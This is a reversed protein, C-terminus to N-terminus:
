PCYRVDLRLDHWYTWDFSNTPGPEITFEVATADTPVGLDFAAPARDAPVAAPTLRREWALSRSGDAAIWRVAFTAGDTAAAPDAFAADRFAGAGRLRLTGAPLPHVLRSPAHAFLDLPHHPVLDGYLRDDALRREFPPEPAAHGLRAVGGPATKESFGDLALPLVRPLRAHRAGAEDRRLYLRQSGFDKVLVYDNAILDRLAPFSEHGDIERKNYGFSDPGVADVFFLARSARLEALYRPRFVPDRMPWVRLQLESHAGRTGQPLGTEVHLHPWWGWMALRDGPRAVARIHRAVDDYPQRWDRALNGYNEPPGHRVRLALPALVATVLLLGFFARRVRPSELGAHLELVAIGTWLIAPLVFLLLYHFFAHRPACLAYIAAASALTALWYLRDPRRHTRRCWLAHVGLLLVIAGFFGPFQWTFRTTRALQVLTEAWSIGTDMYSFNAVLYTLRFEEFQGTAAILALMAVSPVVAGAILAGAWRLRGALPRGRAALTTVLFWLGIACGVPVSQLKAWPLLGLVAGGAIWGLRPQTTIGPEPQRVRCLLWCALALLFIAVHESSYHIFDLDAALALFVVGPMLALAAGAATARTRLVGFLALLAGWELLIAVLRANFYDQPVGLWHTPLLALGNLPGSTTLDVSRFPVPDLQYTLAAAILQAEDPNLPTAQFLVPWRWAFLLALTYLAFAVGDHRPATGTRERRLARLLWLGAAATVVLALSWYATPHADLWAFLHKLM